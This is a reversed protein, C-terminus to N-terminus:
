KNRNLFEYEGISLQGNTSYHVNDMQQDYLESHFYFVNNRENDISDQCAQVEYVFDYTNKTSDNLRLCQWKIENGLYYETSDIFQLMNKKYSIAKISDIADSEGQVWYYNSFKFYTSTDQSFIDKLETVANKFQTFLYGNVPNWKAIDKSSAGLNVVIRDEGVSDCMYVYRIIPGHRLTINFYGWHNIQMKFNQLESNFLIDVNSSIYHQLNEPLTSIMAYGNNSQGNFFDVYVTDSYRANNQKVKDLSTAFFQLQANLSLSLSLSLFLILIRM